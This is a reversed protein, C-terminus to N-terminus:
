ANTGNYIAFSTPTEWLRIEYLPLEEKLENWIWVCLNEATSQEITDNVNTHDLTNIIKRQVVEKVNVFDIVMGDQGRPGEVLVQLRYTHGHLNECKGHYNKLFHAANFTFEKGVIM